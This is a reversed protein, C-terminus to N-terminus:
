AGAARRRRGCAPPLALARGRGCAAEIEATADQLLQGEPSALVLRAGAQALAKAMARGLGRSAGTVVVVRDQLELDIPM